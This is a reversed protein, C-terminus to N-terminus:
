SLNNFVDSWEKVQALIWVGKKAFNDAEATM